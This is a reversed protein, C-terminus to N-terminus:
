GALEEAARQFLTSAGADTTLGALRRLTDAFRAPVEPQLDVRRIAEEIQAGAERFRETVWRAGRKEILSEFFRVSKYLDIEPGADLESWYEDYAFWRFATAARRPGSRKVLELLLDSALEPHYATLTHVVRAVPTRASERDELLAAAGRLDNGFARRAADPHREIWRILPARVQRLVSVTIGPEERERKGLLEFVFDNVRRDIQFNGSTGEFLRIMGATLKDRPADPTIGLASALRAAPAEPARAVEPRVDLLRLLTEDNLEPMVRRLVQPDTARIVDIVVNMSSRLEADESDQIFTALVSAGERSSEQGKRIVRDALNVLRELTAAHGRIVARVGGGEGEGDGFLEVLTRADLLVALEGVLPEDLHERVLQAHRDRGKSELDIYFDFAEALQSGRAGGVERLVDTHERHLDRMQRIYDRWFQFGRDVGAADVLSFRQEKIADFQLAFDTLRQRDERNLAGEIAQPLTAKEDPGLRRYRELPFHQLGFVEGALGRDEPPLGQFWRIAEIWTQFDLDGIGRDALFRDVYKRLIPPILDLDSGTMYVLDAEGFHYLDAYEGVDLRPLNRFRDRLPEFGDPPQRMFADLDSRLLAKGESVADPGSADWSIEPRGTVQFAGWYSHSLEHLVQRPIAQGVGAWGDVGHSGFWTPQAKMQRLDYSELWDQGADTFSWITELAGVREQVWPSQPSDRRETEPTVAAGAASPPDGAQSAELRGAGPESHTCAATVLTMVVLIPVSFPFGPITHLVKPRSFQSLSPSGM